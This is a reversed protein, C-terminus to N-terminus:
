YNNFVRLILIIRRIQRGNTSKRKLHLKTDQTMQEIQINQVVVNETKTNCQKCIRFCM